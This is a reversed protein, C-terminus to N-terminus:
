FCIKFFTDFDPRIVKPSATSGLVHRLADVYPIGAALEQFFIHFFFGALGLNMGKPLHIGKDSMVLSESRTQFPAPVPSFTGGFCLTGM